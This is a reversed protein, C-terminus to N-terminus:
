GKWLKLILKIRSSSNRERAEIGYDRYLESIINRVGSQSYNVRNAIEETTFGQGLLSKVEHVIEESRRSMIKTNDCCKVM